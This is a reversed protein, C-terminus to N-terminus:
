ECVEMIKSIVTFRKGRFEIEGNDNLVPIKIRRDNHKLLNQIIESGCLGWVFRKTSSRQYCLDLMIDCLTEGNSCVEECNRRFENQMDTMKAIATADDVRECSTFAIYNRLEKNFETYLKKIANYQSKTYEVGRKMITYDFDKNHKKNRGVYGDFEAEFRRCIKNMVCDGVGVPMKINYFKLFERQRDTLLEDPIAKLETVSMQFERLSNRETNKIYTNYQKMLAPYIYRMFYPKKNAVISRYFDRTSESEIYSISYTDHWTKPM